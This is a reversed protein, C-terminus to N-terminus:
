ALHVGLSRFKYRRKGSHLPIAVHGAGTLLGCYTAGVPGRGKAKLVGESQAGTRHRMCGGVEEVRDLVVQTYNGIVTVTCEAGYYGAIAGVEGGSRGRNPRPQALKPCLLNEATQMALTWYMPAFRASVLHQWTNDLSGQRGWLVWRVCRV